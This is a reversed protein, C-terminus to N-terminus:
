CSQPLSFYCLCPWSTNALYQGSIGSACEEHGLLWPSPPAWARPMRLGDLSHGRWLPHSRSLHSPQTMCAWEREKQVVDGLLSLFEQVFVVAPHTGLLWITGSHTHLNPDESHREVCIAMAIIICPQAQPSFQTVTCILAM